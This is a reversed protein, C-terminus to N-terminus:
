LGMNLLMRQQDRDREVIPAFLIIMLYTIEVILAILWVVTIKQTKRNCGFKFM